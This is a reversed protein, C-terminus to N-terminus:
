PKKGLMDAYTHTDTNLAGYLQGGIHVEQM